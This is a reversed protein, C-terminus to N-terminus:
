HSAQRDAGFCVFVPRMDADPSGRMLVHFDKEISLWVFQLWFLAAIERSIYRIRAGTVAVEKTQVVAIRIGIGCGPKLRLARVPRGLDDVGRLEAPSIELPFAYRNLACDDILHV